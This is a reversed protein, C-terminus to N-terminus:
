EGREEDDTPAHLTHLTRDRDVTEFRVVPGKRHMRLECKAPLAVNDSLREGNIFSGNSSHLDRIHWGSSEYWVVAHVRSVRQDPISIDNSDDRGILVVESYRQSRPHQDADQWHAVLPVRPSEDHRQVCWARVKGATLPPAPFEYPDRVIGKTTLNYKWSLWVAVPLGLLGAIIFTRVEWDGLGFVPFLEAIGLSLVWLIVIYGTAVRVVKRRSLERYLELLRQM